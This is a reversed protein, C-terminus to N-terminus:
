RRMAFGDLMVYPRGATGKPRITFTHTRISGYSRTFLVARPITSSARTDITGILTSGDYITFVGCTSCKFGVVQLRNGTLTIRAYQTKKALRRFSGLYAKSSAFTLGGSLTAKTQDFPVVAHASSVFGTANGYTDKAKARFVYSKGPTSTTALVGTTAAGGFTRVRGTAGTVWHHVTSSGMVLYDVVFVTSSPASPAFGVPFAAKTSTKSTPDAFAPGAKLATLSRTAVPAANGSRDVTTFTYTYTANLTLGSDTYSTVPAPVYATRQATGTATTGLYRKVVVGSLDSVAPNTWRVTATSGNLVAPLTTASAPATTDASPLSTVDVDDEDTTTTAVAAATGSGSAPASWVDGSAGAAGSTKVYFVTAGDRSFAPQKNYTATDLNVPTGVAAVGNTLTVPAVQLDSTYPATFTKLLAWALNLGDPSMRVNIADAPLGTVATKTGGAFPITYPAGDPTQILVTDNSLFTYPTLDGGVLLSSAGTGVLAKRVTYTDANGDYVEWVARTGDPSLAPVDPYTGSSILRTELVRVARTSTDRVVVEQKVSSTSPVYTTRIYIIRSGDASSSIHSVDSLASEEVKVQTGGAGDAYYLGYSDDGDTDVVTWVREVPAVARAPAALPLTLASAAVALVATGAVKRLTFSM